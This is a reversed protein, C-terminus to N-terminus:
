EIKEIWDQELQDPKEVSLKRLTYPEFNVPFMMHKLFYPKGSANKQLVLDGTPMLRYAQYTISFEDTGYTDGEFDKSLYYYDEENTLRFLRVEEDARFTGFFSTKRTAVDFLMQAAVGCMLGTCNRPGITIGIVEKKYLKYLKLQRWEGVVEMDIKNSGDSDNISKKGRFRVLQGDIRISSEYHLKEVKDIWEIVHRGIRIVSTQSQWLGPNEVNNIIQAPKVENADFYDDLKEKYSRCGFVTATAPSQALVVIWGSITIVLASIVLLKLTLKM